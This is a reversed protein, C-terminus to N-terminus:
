PRVVQKQPGTTEGLISPPDPWDGEARPWILPMGEGEMLEGVEVGARDLPFVPWPKARRYGEAMYVITFVRRMADTLNAGARHVTFGHHWVVSGVPAEVPVPQRGGLAPDGLIDYPETKHLLDVAKLPGVLHSGPVYGTAGGEITSRQFPIWASIMPVDGVPWFTQDQHADTIRGGPEKYLAQDQWLLLRDVNLLESAAEALRRDFTLPRVDPDTEWLRMCQIFSQEYTGKEEVSRTDGSTRREVARDVAERHREVQDSEILGETCVFGNSAFEEIQSPDLIPM